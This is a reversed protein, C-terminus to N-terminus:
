LLVIVILKDDPSSNILGLVFTLEYITINTSTAQKLPTNYKINLVVHEVDIDVQPIDIGLTLTDEEMVRETGGTLPVEKGNRVIKKISLGGDTKVNDYAAASATVDFGTNDSKPIIICSLAIAAAAFMSLIRRKKM